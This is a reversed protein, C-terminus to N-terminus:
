CIGTSTIKLKINNQTSMKLSCVGIFMEENSDNQIQKWRFSQGGMLTLRLNLDKKCIKIRKWSM